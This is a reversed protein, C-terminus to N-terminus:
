KLLIRGKNWPIQGKNAERIKQKTEESRPIGKIKNVRKDISVQSYKINLHSLSNKDIIEQSRKKGKNHNRIKEITKSDRSGTKIGKNWPIKGKNKQSIKRRTSDEFIALTRYGGEKSINYGNPVLTNHIEIYDKEAKHADEKSPFFELIERKFNESGYEKIKQLLIKGSGKYYKSKNCELDNTSHEGIYQKGNILNTTIYVFNFFKEM